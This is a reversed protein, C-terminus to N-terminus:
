TLNIAEYFEEIAKPIDDKHQKKLERFKDIAYQDNRMLFHSENISSFNMNLINAIGGEFMLVSNNFAKIDEFNKLIETNFKMNQVFKKLSNGQTLVFRDAIFLDDSLNNLYNEYNAEVFIFYIGKDAFEEKLKDLNSSLIKSNKYITSFNKIVILTPKPKNEVLLMSLLFDCFIGWIKENEILSFDIGISDQLGIHFSNDFVGALDGEALWDNFNLDYKTFLEQCDQLDNISSDNYIEDVIKQIIDLSIESKEPNFIEQIHQLINVLIDKNSSNECLALLNFGVKKKRDKSVPNVSFYKINLANFLLRSKQEFDVNIIRIDEQVAFSLLFNIVMYSFSGGIFNSRCNEDIIRFIFTNKQWDTTLFKGYQLNDSRNIKNTENLLYLFCVYNGYYVNKYNLFTTNGPIQAWFFEEMRLDLRNFLIGYRSCAEQFISINKKLLEPSDGFINIFTSQVTCINNDINVDKLDKEINLISKLDEEKNTHIDLLKKRLNIEEQLDDYKVFNFTQSINFIIPMSLINRISKESIYYDTKIIFNASWSENNGNKIYINNCNFKFKFRDFLIHSLDTDSINNEFTDCSICMQFLDLYESCFMGDRKILSLQKVNLLESELERTIISIFKDM